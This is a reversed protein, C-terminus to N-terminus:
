MEAASEHEQMNKSNQQQTVGHVVYNDTFNVKWGVVTMYIHLLFMCQPNNQSPNQNGQCIVILHLTYRQSYKQKILILYQRSLKNFTFCLPVTRSHNQGKKTTNSPSSDQQFDGSGDLFEHVKYAVITQYTIRTLVVARFVSGLTGWCFM